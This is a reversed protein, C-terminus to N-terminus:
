QTLQGQTDPFDIYLTTLVRAGQNKIPYDENNCTDLVATFDQIPKFNWLILGPDAYNASRSRRFFNGYVLLPLFTTLM